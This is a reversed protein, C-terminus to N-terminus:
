SQDCNDSPFMQSVLQRAMGPALTNPLLAIEKSGGASKGLAIRDQQPAIFYEGSPEWEAIKKGLEPWRAMMAKVNANWHRTVSTIPVWAAPQLGQGM